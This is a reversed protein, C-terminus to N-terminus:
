QSFAPRQYYSSAPAAVPAEKRAPAYVTRELSAAVPAEAPGRYHPDAHTKMLADYDLSARSHDDEDELDLPPYYDETNTRRKRFKKKGCLHVAGAIGCGALLCLCCGSVFCLAAFKSMSSSGFSPEDFAKPVGSSRGSSGGAYLVEAMSTSETTTIQTTTTNPVIRPMARAGLVSDTKDTALADLIVKRGQSTQVARNNGGAQLMGAELIADKANQLLSWTVNVPAQVLYWHVGETCPPVTLSGTYHFYSGRVDPLFTAGLDIKKDIVISEGARSPLGSGLHFADQTNRKFHMNEFFDLHRKFMSTTSEVVRLLISLGVLGHTEADEFMIQVEGVEPASDAANAMIKHEAPFHFHFEKSTFTGAPLDMSGFDKAGFFTQIPTANLTYGTNTLKIKDPAAFNLKHQGETLRTYMLEQATEVTPKLVTSTDIAIPSQM